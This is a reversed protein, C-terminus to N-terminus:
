GDKFILKEALTTDSRYSRRMLAKVRTVLERPSFPKVVYDDAGITLGLKVKRM